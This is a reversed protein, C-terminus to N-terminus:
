WDIKMHERNFSPVPFFTKKQLTRDQKIKKKADYGLLSSTTTNNESWTSTWESSRKEKMEGLFRPQTLQARGKEKAM